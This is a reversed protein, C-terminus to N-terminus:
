MAETEPLPQPKRSQGVTESASISRPHVISFQPKSGVKEGRRRLLRRFAKMWGEVILDGVLDFLKQDKTCPCDVGCSASEKEREDNNRYCWLHKLEFTGCEGAEIRRTLLPMEGVDRRTGWEFERDNLTLKAYKFGLRSAAFSFARWLEEISGCREGELALWQSLGLTYKVERRMGLSSFVVQPVNFWERSFRFRRACLLLILVATGLLSPILRGNTIFVAFGLIQFVLTFGYLWLLVQRNSMGTRMLRHHLHRRDARFIPLGKLGRRCIAIATDLIPLALVFLPAVMAAAVTGKHSSLLSVLGIQFGLLYAGGDGLYIRAPPFNFLLFGVLAGAMGSTLLGFSGNTYGVYALLVMLMLCIGGALGDVGDILNVLNTMGVLWLVTLVYGVAGLHVIHETFPIKFVAIGFGSAYVLSAILIQGLLKWKAGLPRIDDSFGIAFIGLCSAILTLREWIPQRHQFFIIAVVEIALFAMALALGGLRPVSASTRTHHLDGARKLLTSGRALRLILPITAAAVVFGLGAFVALELLSM